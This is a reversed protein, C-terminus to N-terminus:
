QQFKMELNRYNLFFILKRILYKFKQGVTLNIIVQLMRFLRLIMQTEEQIKLRVKQVKKRIQHRKVSFTMVVPIVAIKWYKQFTSLLMQGLLDEERDLIRDELRALKHHVLRMIMAKKMVQIKRKALKRKLNKLVKLYKQFMQLLMTMAMKKQIKMLRHNVM